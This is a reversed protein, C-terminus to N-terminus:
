KLPSKSSQIKIKRKLILGAGLTGFLGLTYSPEPVSTSQAVPLFFGSIEGDIFTASHINLYATGAELSSTLAAQASAATGGSATRFDTNYSSNQTLDFLNDYSGSKVGLPFNPLGTVVGGTGTFAVTTPGHIHPNTTNGVLGSFTVQLRLTNAINDLALLATGTGPSTNPPSQNPGTLDATFSLIAAQSQSAPAIAVITTAALYFSTLLFKM